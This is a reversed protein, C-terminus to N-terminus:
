RSTGRGPKWFLTEVGLVGPQGLVTYRAEIEAHYLDAPPEARRARVVITLDRAARGGGALGPVQRSGEHLEIAGARLAEMAAEVARNAEEKAELRVLVDRQQALLGLGLLLALGLIALAALVEVLSFGASRSDSMM